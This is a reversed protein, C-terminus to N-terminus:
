LFELLVGDKLALNTTQLTECEFFSLIERLIIGASCILEVRRAELSPIERLQKHDMLLMTQVIEDIFSFSLEDTECGQARSIRLFARISGSSGIALRANRSKGDSFENELLDRTETQLNQVGDPVPPVEKLFVQQGRAAGIPISCCHLLKSDSSLSVETSGGGMDLFAIDGDPLKSFHRIGEFIYRAEEEGSLVCLSTGLEETVIRALDEQNSANRAASTGVVRLDKVQEAMLIDSFHRLARRARKLAEQSISGTQFVGEGLLIMDKHQEILKPTSSSLDYIFLRSSNTGIDIIGVKKM